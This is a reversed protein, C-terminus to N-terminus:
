SISPRPLRYMLSTNSQYRPSSAPSRLLFSDLLSTSCSLECRQSCKAFHSFLMKQINWKCALGRVFYAAWEKMFNRMTPRRWSAHGGKQEHLWYRDTFHQRMCCQMVVNLSERLSMLKNMHQDSSVSHRELCQTVLFPDRHPIGIWLWPENKEVINQTAQSHM